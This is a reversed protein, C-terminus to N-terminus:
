NINERDHFYDTSMESTSQYINIERDHFLPLAAFQMVIILFFSVTVM